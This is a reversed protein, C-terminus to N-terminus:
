IIKCDMVDWADWILPLDDYIYFRGPEVGRNLFDNFAVDSGNFFLKETPLGPSATSAELHIIGNSFTGFGPSPTNAKICFYIRMINWVQLIKFTNIRTRVLM